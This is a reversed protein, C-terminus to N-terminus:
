LQDGIWQLIAQMREILRFEPSYRPLKKTAEEVEEKIGISVELFAKDLELKDLCTPCIRARDTFLPNDEPIKGGCDECGTKGVPPCTPPDPTNYHM